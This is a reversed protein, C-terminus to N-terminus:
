PSQFASLSASLAPRTRVKIDGPIQESSFSTPAPLLRNIYFLASRTICECPRRRSTAHRLPHPFAPFPAKTTGRSNQERSRRSEKHEDVNALKRQSCRSRTGLVGQFVIDREFAPALMARKFSKISPANELTCGEGVSSWRMLYRLVQLPLSYTDRIHETDKVCSSVIDHLLSKM